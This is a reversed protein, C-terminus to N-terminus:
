QVAFVNEGPILQIKLEDSGFASLRALLIGTVGADDTQGDTLM